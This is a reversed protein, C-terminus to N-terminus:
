RNQNAKLTNVERQAWTARETQDIFEQSRQQALQEERRKRYIENRKENEKLRAQRKAEREQQQALRRDQYEQQKLEQLERQEQYRTERKLRQQEMLERDKQQNELINDRYSAMREKRAHEYLMNQQQIAQDYNMYRSMVGAKMIDRGHPLIMILIVSVVVVGIFARSFIFGSIFDTWDFFQATHLSTRTGGAREHAIKNNYSHRLSPSSLVRYADTLRQVKKHYMPSDQLKEKAAKLLRQYAFEIMDQSANENVELIEYYTESAM